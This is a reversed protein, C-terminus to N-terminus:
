ITKEFFNDYEPIIKEPMYYNVIQNYNYETCDTNKIIKDIFEKENNCICDPHLIEPALGVNTSLIKVKRYSAELISQPGGEFRSTVFYWDLCDYLSSIDNYKEMYIYPIKHEKLKRVVYNRAYGALIVKIKLFTNLMVLLKILIDPGKSLKPLDGNQGNGDKVFSGILVENNSSFQKRLQSVKEKNITKTYESLLWYPIRYIPINIYKSLENEVIKNSAICANAKNLISFDYEGINERNIHHVHIVSLCKEPISRYLLPFSFVDLCWFIDPYDFLRVIEHRTFKRYDNCIRDLIWKAGPGQIALKM